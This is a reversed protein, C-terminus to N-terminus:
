YRILYIEYNVSGTGAVFIRHFLISYFSFWFSVAEYNDLFETEDDDLAKPPGTIIISSDFILGPHCCFSVM